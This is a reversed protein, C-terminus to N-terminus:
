GHGTGDCPRIPPRLWRATRARSAAVVDPPEARDAATGNSAGHAHQHESLEVGRASSSLLTVNPVEGVREGGAAVVDVHGGDRGVARRSRRGVSRDPHVPDPRGGLADRLEVLGGGAGVCRREGIGFQPGPECAQEAAVPEVHRVSMVPRHAREDPRGAARAGRHQEGQVVVAVHAGGLAHHPAVPYAAPGSRAGAEPARRGHVAGGDARADHQRIEEPAPRPLLM